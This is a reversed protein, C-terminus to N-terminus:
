FSLLDLQTTLFYFFYASFIVLINPFEYVSLQLYKFKRSIEINANDIHPLIKLINQRRMIIAKPRCKLNLNQYFFIIKMM